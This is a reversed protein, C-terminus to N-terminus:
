AFSSLRRQAIHEKLMKVKTARLRAIEAEVVALLLNGDRQKMANRMSASLKVDTVEKPLMDLYEEAHVEALNFNRHSTLANQCSELVFLLETYQKRKM